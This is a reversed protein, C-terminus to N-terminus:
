MYALIQYGIIISQGRGSCAYAKSVVAIHFFVCILFKTHGSALEKVEKIYMILPRM